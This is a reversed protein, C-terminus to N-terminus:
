GQTCATGFPSDPHQKAGTSRRKLSVIDIRFYWLVTSYVSSSKKKMWYPTILTQTWRSRSPYTPHEFQWTCQSSIYRVQYIKRSACAHHWEKEGAHERHVTRHPSSRFEAKKKQRCLPDGIPSGNKLTFPKKVSNGLLKDRLVRTCCDNHTLTRRLSKKKKKEQSAVTETQIRSHM